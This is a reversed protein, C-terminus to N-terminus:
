LDVSGNMGDNIVFYAKGEEPKLYIVLKKISSERHGEAVYAAIARAKCDAINWEAGDAQLYIEEVRAPKEASKKAPKRGAPKKTAVKELLSEKKNSTPKEAVSQVATEPQVAEAAPVTKKRPM